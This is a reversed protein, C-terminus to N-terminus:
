HWASRLGGSSSSVLARHSIRSERPRQFSKALVAPVEPFVRATVPSPVASHAGSLGPGTTCGSKSLSPAPGPRQGGVLRGTRPVAPSGGAPPHTGSRPPAGQQTMGKRPPAPAGQPCCAEGAPWMEGVRTQMGGHVAYSLKQRTNATSTM